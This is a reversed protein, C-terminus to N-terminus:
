MNVTANDVSCKLQVARVSMRGKVWFRKLYIDRKNVKDEYDDAHVMGKKEYWKELAIGLNTPYLTELETVPIEDIIQIEDSVCMLNLLGKIVRTTARGNHKIWMEAWEAGVTKLTKVPIAVVCVVKKDFLQLGYCLVNSKNMIEDVRKVLEKRRANM